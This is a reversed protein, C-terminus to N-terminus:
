KSIKIVKGITKKLGMLFFLTIIQTWLEMVKIIKKLQSYLQNINDLIEKIKEYFRIKKMSYFNAPITSFPELIEYGLAFKENNKTYYMINLKARSFIHAFATLTKPIFLLDSECLVKELLPNDINDKDQLRLDSAILEKAPSELMIACYDASYVSNPNYAALSIFALGSEIKGCANKEWEPVPSFPLAIANKYIIGNKASSTDPSFYKLHTAYYKGESKAWKRADPLTEGRIYVEKGNNVEQMFFKQAFTDVIIRKGKQSLEFLEKFYSHSDNLKLFYNSNWSDLGNYLNAEIIDAESYEIKLNKSIGILKDNEAIFVIRKINKQHRSKFVERIKHLDEEGYLWSQNTALCYCQKITEKSLHDTEFPVEVNDGFHYAGKIDLLLRGRNRVHEEMKTGPYPVAINYKYDSLKLHRQFKVTKKTSAISDGPLGVIFYGVCRLGTAQIMKVAKVIDTLSEGKQINNFIGEDGSEIGIAISKCGSKKMLRLLEEDLRDARLGNHCWWELNLREKILLSCIAKANGLDFTFNDDMIEFSTIQYKKKAEILEEIVNEPKRSRWKKGMISGVCCFICGYPCGRSTLLPYRFDLFDINIISEFRPFPLQSIEPNFCVPNRLFANDRYYCLGSIKSFGSKNNALNSILAVFSIEGEGEIGFDIFRNEKLFEDACLSIHPGGAVYIVDPFSQKLNALIEVSANATATKVSIGIVKPNFSNVIKNLANQSYTNNNMDLIETKINELSLTGALYALGLNITHKQWGPPDILLVRM